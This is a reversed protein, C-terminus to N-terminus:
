VAHRVVKSATLQAQVHMFAQQGHETTAILTDVKQRSDSLQQQLHSREESLLQVQQQATAAAQQATDYADHADQAGDRIGRLVGRGGYM